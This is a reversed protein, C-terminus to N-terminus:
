GLAIGELGLVCTVLRTEQSVWHIKCELMIFCVLEEKKLKCINAFCIKLGVSHFQPLRMLLRFHRSCLNGVLLRLVCSSKCEYFVYVVFDFM